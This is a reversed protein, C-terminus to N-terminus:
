TGYKWSSLYERQRETLEDIEIGMAELKLKAVLEDLEWPLKMVTKSLKGRNELLYKVALFQNAFSMDM